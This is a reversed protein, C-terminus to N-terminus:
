VEKKLHHSSIKQRKKKASYRTGVEELGAAEEQWMLGATM